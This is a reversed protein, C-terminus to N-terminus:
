ICKKVRLLRGKLPIDQQVPNWSDLAGSLERISASADAKEASRLLECPTHTIYPILRAASSRAKEYTPDISLVVIWQALAALRQGNNNLALGLNYRAAIFTPRRKLAQQFLSTAEELAGSQARILGLNNLAEPYTPNLQYAQELHSTAQKVDGKDHLTLGLNMHAMFNRPRSQLTRTYISESDKWNPLEQLTVCSAASIAFLAIAYQLFPYPRLKEHTYWTAAVILGIHPLYTWRDAYSQGGIQIIGCLPLLSATFWIWGSTIYPHRKWQRLSLWSITALIVISLSTLAWSYDQFPYFIGFEWPAIFKFTYILYGVAASALRSTLPYEDTAQLGGSSHQGYLAVLSFLISLVLLPAKEKLLHALSAETRKLPFLDFAFLLFPLTVFTPKCLLSIGMCIVLAAYWLKRRSQVFSVYSHIALLGWFMSLVDKRESVWAVSEIRLPHLAFIAAAVLSLGLAHTSRSLLFFLLLANTAHIAVSVLHQAGANLGFLSCDLMHSLWAGPQWHGSSTNQFAWALNSWSLGSTVRPNDYVYHPDDFNIFSFESVQAYILAVASLLTISALLRNRGSSAIM